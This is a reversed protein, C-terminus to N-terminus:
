LPGAGAPNLDRMLRLFLPHDFHVKKLFSLMADTIPPLPMLSPFLKLVHPWAKILHGQRQEAPHFWAWTMFWGPDPVDDFKQWRVGVAGFCSIKQGTVPKAFLLVRDSSYKGGYLRAEEAEYPAPSFHAGNAFDEALLRAAKRYSLPSNPGLIFFPLQNGPTDYPNFAVKRIPRCFNM